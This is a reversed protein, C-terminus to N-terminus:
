WNAAWEGSLIASPDSGEESATGRAITNRATASPRNRSM